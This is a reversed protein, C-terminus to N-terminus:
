INKSGIIFFEIICPTKVEKEDLFSSLLLFTYEFKPYYARINKSGIILFELIGGNKSRKGRKKVFFCSFSGTYDFKPYYPLINKAFKSM